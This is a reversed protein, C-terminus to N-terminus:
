FILKCDRSICFLKGVTCSDLLIGGHLVYNVSLLKYQQRECGRSSPIHM